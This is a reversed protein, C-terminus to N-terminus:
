SQYLYLLLKLSVTSAAAAPIDFIVNMVSNLDLVMFVTAIVNAIFAIMFYILGDTFILTLLRSRGGGNAAFALKVATLCLVIFDFIMTYVYVAVLITNSTSTIACGEGPVLSAKVQLIGRLLIGWHGLILAVISIIIWKNQLWVAISNLNPM